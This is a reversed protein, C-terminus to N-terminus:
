KILYKHSIPWSLPVISISRISANYCITVMCVFRDLYLKQISGKTYTFCTPALSTLTKRSKKRLIDFCHIKIKRNVALHRQLDRLTNGVIMAPTCCIARQILM